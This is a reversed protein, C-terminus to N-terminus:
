RGPGTTVDAAMVHVLSSSITRTVAGSASTVLTM